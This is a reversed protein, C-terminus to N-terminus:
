KDGVWFIVNVGPTMASSIGTDEDLGTLMPVDRSDSILVGVPDGDLEVTGPSEVVFDFKWWTKGDQADRVPLTVQQPLTRLAIIQNITEWNRQQNRARNWAIEDNIEQGQAAVTPARNKNYASKIGTATVDFRTQCCIRM